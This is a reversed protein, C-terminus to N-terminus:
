KIFSTECKESNLHIRCLNKFNALTQFLDPFHFFEFAMSRIQDARKCVVARPPKCLVRTAWPRVPDAGRLPGHAGASAPPARVRREFRRTASRRHCPSATLHREAAAEAHSPLPDTACPAFVVSVEGAHLSTAAPAGPPSVAAAVISQSPTRHSSFLFHFTLSPLRRRGVDSFSPPPEDVRFLVSAEARERSIVEVTVVHPSPSLFHARRRFLPSHPPQRHTSPRRRPPRVPPPASRPPAAVTVHRARARLSRVHATPAKIARTCL